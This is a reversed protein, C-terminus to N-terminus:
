RMCVWRRSQLQANCDKSGRGVTRRWRKESFMEKGPLGDWYHITMGDWYSNDDRASRPGWRARKQRSPTLSRPIQLEHRKALSQEPDPHSAKM